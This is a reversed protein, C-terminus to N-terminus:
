PVTAGAPLRAACDSGVGALWDVTAWNPPGPLRVNCNFGFPDRWAVMSQPAVADAPWHLIRGALAADVPPYSTQRARVEYLADFDAVGSRVEHAERLFRVAGDLTGSLQAIHVEVGPPLVTTPLPKGDRPLIAIDTEGGLAPFHLDLECSWRMEGERSNGSTMIWSM